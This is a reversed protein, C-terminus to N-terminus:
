HDGSTALQEVRERACDAHCKELSNLFLSSMFKLATTIKHPIYTRPTLDHQVVIDIDVTEKRM